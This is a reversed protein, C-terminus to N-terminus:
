RIEKVPVSFSFASGKGLTSKLWLNGGMLEVLGKSIALGLGTGGFSRTNSDDVQRFRNFIVEQMEKSIGIGTDKVEFILMGNEQVSLNLVVSGKNTFKLANKLLNVLVQQMKGEDAEIQFVTQELIPFVINIHEKEIYRSEMEITLRIKELFSVLNFQRMNLKLQQVELYSVTIIDDIIGLLQRGNSNIIDIYRSTEVESIDNDRLLESFGLISNMPTRIEHSMNALFATKLKDSEEAKEKALLLEKELRKRKTIDEKVAVFHSIEGAKNKVASISAFEWYYTGDKKRNQFEGRWERDDLITKWMDEYLAPPTVGSNLIRPNEGYVEEFSYGTLQEFKPNVYEIDGAKNTIVVSVPSQKVSNNLVEIQESDRMRRIASVLQLSIFELLAQDEENFANDKEYNQVVLVGFPDNENRLPVGLWTKSAKGIRKIKGRADFDLLTKNDLLLSCNETMVLRSITGGAPIQDISALEGTVYQIDLVDKAEDYFAVFMNNADVLKNIEKQIVIYFERSITLDSAAQSINYIVETLIEQKKRETIDQIAGLIRILKNNENYVPSFKLWIYRVGSDDRIIRFESVQESQLKMKHLESLLDKFSDADDSHIMSSIIELSPDPKKAQGLVRYMGDSFRTEGTNIDWDFSGSNTIEEAISSLSPISKADSESYKKGEQNMYDIM